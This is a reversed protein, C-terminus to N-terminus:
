SNSCAPLTLTQLVDGSRQDQVIGVLLPARGAEAPRKWTVSATVSGEPDVKFPGALTRVVHDHALRAGRNEGAKIDSVLGSDAYALWLVANARLTRTPVRATAQLLIGGGAVDNSSAALTVSARAERERAAALM